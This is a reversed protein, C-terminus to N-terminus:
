HYSVNERRDIVECLSVVFSKWQLRKNLKAGDEKSNGCNSMGENIERESEFEEYKTTEARLM